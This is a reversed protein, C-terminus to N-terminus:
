NFECSVVSAATTRNAPFAAYVVEAGALARPKPRDSETFSCQQDRAKIKTRVGALWTATDATFDEFSENFAQLSPSKDAFGYIETIGSFLRSERLYIQSESDLTSKGFVVVQVPKAVIGPCTEATADAFLQSLKFAQGSKGEKFLETNVMLVDCTVQTSCARKLWTAAPANGVGITQFVVKDKEMVHRKLVLTLPDNVGTLSCVRVVQDAASAQVTFVLSALTAMIYRTM